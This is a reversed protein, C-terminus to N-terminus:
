AAGCGFIVLTQVQLSQLGQLMVSVPFVNNQSSTNCLMRQYIWIRVEIYIKNKNYLYMNVLIMYGTNDFAVVIAYM